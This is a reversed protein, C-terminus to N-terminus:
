CSWESSFPTKSRKKITPPGLVTGTCRVGVAAAAGSSPGGGSVQASDDTRAPPRAETKHLFMRSNIPQVPV